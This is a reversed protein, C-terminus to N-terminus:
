EDLVVAAVNSLTPATIDLEPATFNAELSGYIVTAVNWNDDEDIDTYPISAAANTTPEGNALLGPQVTVRDIPPSNNATADEIDDTTPINFTMDIFKILGTDYTPGFLMGKLTLDLTWVVSRHTEFDADAYDDHVDVRNLIIPVNLIVNMEPIMEATVTFEPTFFPLVQEVISYGDTRSKAFAWVTYHFDYPVPNYQRLYGSNAVASQVVTYEAPNLHRDADYEIDQLQYSLRPLMVAAPRDITPDAKLRAITKDKPAYSIPVRISQEITGNSHYRPISIDNFLNGVIADYKRILSWAFIPLGLM